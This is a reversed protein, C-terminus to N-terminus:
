FIFFTVSQNVQLLNDRLISLVFKTIKDKTIKDIGSPQM